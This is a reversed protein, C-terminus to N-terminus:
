NKSRSFHRQLGPGRKLPGRQICELAFWFLLINLARFAKMSLKNLNACDKTLCLNNQSTVIKKINRFYNVTFNDIIIQFFFDKFRSHHIFISYIIQFAYNMSKM